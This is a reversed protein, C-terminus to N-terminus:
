IFPLYKQTTTAIIYHSEVEGLAPDINGKKSDQRGKGEGRASLLTHYGDFAFAFSGMLPCM